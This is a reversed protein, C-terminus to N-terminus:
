TAMPVLMLLIDAFIIAADVSFAKIPQLTVEAALVPNYCLDLFSGATARVARHRGSRTRSSSTTWLISRQAAVCTGGVRTCAFAETM